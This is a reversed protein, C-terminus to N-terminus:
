GFYVTLARNQGYSVNLYNGYVDDKEPTYECWMKAFRNLRKEFKPEGRSVYEGACGCRCARDKGLYIKTVKSIDLEPKLM